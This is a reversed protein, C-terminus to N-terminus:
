AGRLLYKAHAHRWQPDLKKVAMAGFVDDFM